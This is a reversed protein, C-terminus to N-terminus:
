QCNPFKLSAVRTSWAFSATATYYQNTYWFTCGDNDIAMSTYDGWRDATDVQSGTGAFLLGESEMTGAPDSPARGTFNISPFQSSSSTSYALAINGMKDMALSGMWRYTSDPAYTGQQFVTLATPHNIPARFEYWREGVSNGATVSHSVLFSQHNFAAAGSRRYALRYMLRDGLSDLVDGVNKQPICAGFGGCALNYQNVAIPMAGDVGTFTSNSPTVFDVHFLYEYVNQGPNFNDISGVFVEPMGKPPLSNESDIDAPLMSDDFLTNNSNDLFCIQKATPDGTLMKASEYACVGSGIYLTLQNNFMNQHQYYADRWIGVKPYDPFGSSQNGQCCANFQYLHYTGLADPTTSVAFCSYFPPGNFVPQTLVWRHAIKDWQAIIDGNNNAACPGGLNTWLTNGLIPGTLANGTAKDFVAFSVNVWEVVQTDGAALNVDTPADPVRYNDFGIGVGLVNVGLTPQLPSPAYSQVGKDEAKSIGQKSLQMLKQLKPRLPPSALHFGFPQSITPQEAVLDRLPRSTAFNVAHGVAPHTLVSPNNQASAMGCVLLLCCLGVCSMSFSSRTGNSMTM